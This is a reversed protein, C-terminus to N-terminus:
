SDSGLNQDNRKKNKMTFKSLRERANIKKTTSGFM